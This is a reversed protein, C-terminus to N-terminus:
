SGARLQQQGPLRYRAEALSTLFTRVANVGAMRCEAASVGTGVVITVSPPPLAVFLDEDTEDDGIAVIGAPDIGVNLLRKAALAKSVGRLRVEIVKSGELVEFPQDALSRDLWRQMEEANRRGTGPESLRYHWALSASKTEIFSGATRATFHELVPRVLETWGPPVACAPEWTGFRARHWFGHEAWLGVPLNRFWLDATNVPRGTVIEVSTRPARALRELM